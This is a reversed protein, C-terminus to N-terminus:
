DRRFVVDGNVHVFRGHAKMRPAHGLSARDFVPTCTGESRRASPTRFANIKKSRAEAALQRCKPYGDEDESTLEPCSPHQEFLDLVRGGFDAEYLWFHRPAASPNAELDALEGVRRQHYRMEDISTEDELASYFVARQGDTFRTPRFPTHHNPKKSPEFVKDM